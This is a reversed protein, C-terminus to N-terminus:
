HSPFPATTGHCQSCVYVLFAKLSPFGNTEEPITEREPSHLRRLFLVDSYVSRRSGAAQNQDTYCKKHAASFLIRGICFFCLKYPRFGRSLIRPTNKDYKNVSIRATNYYIPILSHLACSCDTCDRGLVFCRTCFMLCLVPSLFCSLWRLKTVSKLNATWTCCRISGLLGIRKHVRQQLGPLFIPLYQGKTRRFLSVEGYWDKEM